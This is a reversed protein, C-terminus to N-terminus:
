DEKTWKPYEITQKSLPSVRKLNFMIELTVLIEDEPGFLPSLSPAEPQQHSEM